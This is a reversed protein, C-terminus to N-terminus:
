VILLLHCNIFIVNMRYKLFEIVLSERDLTHFYDFVQLAKKVKNSQLPGIMHLRLDKHLNKLDSYKKLAEQVKNEGFFLVGANIAEKIASISQNKSVAIISTPIGNNKSTKSVFSTLKLYNDLKFTM